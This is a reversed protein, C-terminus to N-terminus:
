IALAALEDLYGSDLVGQRADMIAMARKPHQNAIGALAYPLSYGWRLDERLAVMHRDMVAFLPALEAVNRGLQALILELHCNGAGRGLGYLSADVLTAGAEIAALTNALALQQNNHGHFGIEKGPCADRYWGVLERTSSPNLNGYSDVVYVGRAPSEAAVLHLGTALESETAESVAMINVFSEYGLEALRQGTAVAEPIQHVYCAVRYTSVVSDAAPPLDTLNFRGIDIMVSLRSGAPGALAQDGWVVRLAAEPCFRWVGYERPDFFETGAKYGVEVYDVGVRVAAAVSEAVFTPDFKWRNMLGGDRISCDLVQVKKAEKASM